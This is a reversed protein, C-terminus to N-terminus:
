TSDIRSLWMTRPRSLATSPSPTSVPLAFPRLSTPSRPSSSGPFNFLVDLSIFSGLTTPSLCLVTLQCLDRISTKGQLSPCGPRPTHDCSVYTLWVFRRHTPPCEPDKWGLRKVRPRFVIVQRSTLKILLDGTGLTYSWPWFSLTKVCQFSVLPYHYM